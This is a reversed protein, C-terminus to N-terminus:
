YSIYHTTRILIDGEVRGIMRRERGEEKREKELIFSQERLRFLCLQEGDKGQALLTQSQHQVPEAVDELLGGKLPHTGLRQELLQLPRAHVLRVGLHPPHARHQQQQQLIYAYIIHIPAPSSL